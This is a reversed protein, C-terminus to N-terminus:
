KNVKRSGYNEQTGRLIKRLQHCTKRKERGHNKASKGAHWAAKEQTGAELCSEPEARDRGANQMLMKFDAEGDEDYYTEGHRLVYCDVPISVGVVDETAKMMIEGMTEAAQDIDGDRAEIVFEDHVIACIRIGAELARIAAIRMIDAAAAQVPFNRCTRDPPDDDKWYQPWFRWGLPSWLPAACLGRYAFNDSWAFFTPFTARQRRLLM